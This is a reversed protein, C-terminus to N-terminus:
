QGSGTMRQEEVTLNMAADAATHIAPDSNAELIKLEKPAWKQDGKRDEAVNWRYHGLHLIATTRWCREVSPSKAAAFIDGAYKSAYSEVPNGLPSAVKEQLDGHYAQVQDTFKQLVDVRASDAAKDSLWTMASTSMTMISLGKNLEEWTAREQFLNRGLVFAADYYEKAKKPESERFQLGVDNTAQGLAMLADIWANKANYNIFQKPDKDFLRMGACDVAQKVKAVAPLKAPDVRAADEYVKPDQLYLDIAERYLDGADCASTGVPLVTDSSVPLAIPKFALPVLGSPSSEQEPLAIVVLMGVAALLMLASILWGQLNGWM